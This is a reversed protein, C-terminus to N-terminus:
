PHVVAGLLWLGWLPGARHMAQALEQPQLSGEPLSVCFSTTLHGQSKLPVSIADTIASNNSLIDVQLGRFL